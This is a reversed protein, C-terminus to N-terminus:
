TGQRAFALTRYATAAIAALTAYCLAITGAAGYIWLSPIAGVLVRVRDAAASATERVLVKWWFRDTVGSALSATPSGSGRVLAILGSVILAAAVASGAYFAIRAPYPWYAFSKRWWPLAARRDLERLVRTELSAPAKRDPLSRLVRQISAELKEPDHTNM